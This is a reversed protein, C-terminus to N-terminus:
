RRPAPKQSVPPSCRPDTRIRRPHEVNALQCTGSGLERGDAGVACTCVRDSPCDYDWWCSGRVDGETPTLLGSVTQPPTGYIPRWVGEYHYFGLHERWWVDRLAALTVCRFRSRTVTDDGEICGCAENAAAFCYSGQGCQPNAESCSAQPSVGRKSCAMGSLLVVLVAIDAHAKMLVLRAFRCTYQFEYIYYTPEIRAINMASNSAIANDM